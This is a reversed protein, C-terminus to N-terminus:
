MTQLRQTAYEAIDANDDKSLTRLISADQTYEAVLHRVADNDHGRLMRRVNETGSIALAAVVDANDDYVLSAQIDETGQSAFVYRVHASDDTLMKRQTEETSHGAVAARVNESADNILQQQMDDTGYIAVVRRVFYFDDDILKSRMEHTGHKAVAARVYYNDDHLLSERMAHTGYQAVTMRVQYNDDSALKWQMKETGHEAILLRVQASVHNNLLAEHIADTGYHALWMQVHIDDSNHASFLAHEMLLNKEAETANNQTVIDGNKISNITIMLLIKSHINNDLSLPLMGMTDRKLVFLFSSSVIM